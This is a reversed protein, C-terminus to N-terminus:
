KSEPKTKLITDRVKELIYKVSLIADDNAPIPYDVLTPDVNTDAIAIIKIGKKRAERIALVDKKIDLVFIADPAKELEKIGGFKTELDRLEKDLESREKKTYKELERDKKKRELEKFYEIRKKIIEFNTITGGLWRQNVYPLNS